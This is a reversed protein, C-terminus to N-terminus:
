DLLVKDSPLRYIRTTYNVSSPTDKKIANEARTIAFYIKVKVGTRPTVHALNYIM